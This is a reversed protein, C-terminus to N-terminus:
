VWTEVFTNAGYPWSTVLTKGDIVIDDWAVIKGVIFRGLTYTGEALVYGCRLPARYQTDVVEVKQGLSAELALGADYRARSKPSSLIEYAHQIAMFQEKANKEQCVDPHWQRALRRYASKIAEPGATREVMLVSYLSSADGPQNISIGEFWEKLVKEPFIVRWDGNMWGFATVEGTDRPKATGMYRIDLVQMITEMPKPATPVSIREGYYREILDAVAQGHKVDVLWAKLDRDYRREAYPLRSKLENVLAQNYPTKVVLTAGQQTISAMTDVKTSEEAIPTFIM